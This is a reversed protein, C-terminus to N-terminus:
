GALLTEALQGEFRSLQLSRGILMCCAWAASDLLVTVDLREYVGMASVLM